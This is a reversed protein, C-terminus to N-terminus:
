HIYFVLVTIDFINSQGFLHRFHSKESTIWSNLCNEQKFSLAAEYFRKLALMGSNSMQFLVLYASATQGMVQDWKKRLSLIQDTVMRNLMVAFFKEQFSFVYEM